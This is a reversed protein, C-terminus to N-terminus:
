RVATMRDRIEAMTLSGALGDTALGHAAQFATVARRTHRGYSGHPVLQPDKSFGETANLRNLAAQLWATVKPDFLAPLDPPPAPVPPAPLPAPPGKPLPEPGASWPP